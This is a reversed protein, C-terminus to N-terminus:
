VGLWEKKEEDKLLLMLKQLTIQEILIYQVTSCM